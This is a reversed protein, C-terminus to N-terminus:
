PRHAFVCCFTEYMTMKSCGSKDKKCLDCFTDKRRSVKTSVYFIKFYIWFNEKVQYPNRISCNKYIALGNELLLSSGYFHLLGFILIPFYNKVLYFRIYNKKCFTKNTHLLRAFINQPKNFGIKEFICFTSCFKLYSLIYSYYKRM